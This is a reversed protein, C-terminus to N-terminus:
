GLGEQTAREVVKWFQDDRLSRGFVFAKPGVYSLLHDWFGPMDCGNWGSEPHWYYIDKSHMLAFGETTERAIVQVNQVPATYPDGSYVSNDGYYIRYRM